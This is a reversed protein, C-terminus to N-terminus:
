RLCAGLVQNAAHLHKIFIGSSTEHSCSEQRNFTRLPAQDPTRVRDLLESYELEEARRQLEDIPLTLHMPVPFDLSDSSVQMCAWPRRQRWACVVHCAAPHVLCSSVQVHPNSHTLVTMSHKVVKWLENATAMRPKTEPLSERREPIPEDEWWPKPSGEAM